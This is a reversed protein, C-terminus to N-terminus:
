IILECFFVSCESETLLLVSESSQSYITNVLYRWRDIPSNCGIYIWHRWEIWIKTPREIIRVSLSFSEVICKFFFFLLHIPSVNIKSFIFRGIRFRWFLRYANRKNTTRKMLKNIGKEFYLLLLLLFLMFFFIIQHSHSFNMRHHVAMFNNQYLYYSSYTTTRNSNNIKNVCKKKM